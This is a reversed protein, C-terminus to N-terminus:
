INNSNIVINKIQMIEQDDPDNKIFGSENNFNNNINNNIGYRFESSTVSEFTPLRLNLNLDETMYNRSNFNNYKKQLLNNNKMPNLLSFYKNDNNNNNININISNNDKDKDKNM